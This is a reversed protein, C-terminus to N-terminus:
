EIVVRRFIDKEITFIKEDDKCFDNVNSFYICKNHYVLHTEDDEEFEELFTKISDNWEKRANYIINKSELLSLLQENVRCPEIIEINSEEEDIIHTEIGKLDNMYICKKLAEEKTKFICDLRCPCKHKQKQGTKTFNAVCQVTKYRMKGNVLNDQKVLWKGCTHGRKLHEFFETATFSVRCINCYKRGSHHQDFHNEHLKLTKSVHPCLHCKVKCKMQKNIKEIKEKAEKITNQLDIINKELEMSKKM